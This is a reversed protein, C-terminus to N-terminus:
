EKELERLLKEDIKHSVKIIRKLKEGDYQSKIRPGDELLEDLEELRELEDDHNCGAEDNDLFDCFPCVGNKEYWVIESHERCENKEETM